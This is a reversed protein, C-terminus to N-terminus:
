PSEQEERNELRETLMDQIRDRVIDAARSNRELDSFDTLDHESLLVPEGFVITMKNPLPMPSSVRGRPPPLWDALRPTAAMRKRAARRSRSIMTDDLPVICVPIIPSETEFAMQVFSTDRFRAVKHLDNNISGPPSYGEPFVSVLEDQELLRVGNDVSNVAQGMKVMLSSLFPIAPIQEPYLNRVLRQAPHENLVTTMILAPDWSPQDSQNCVLLTRDYDPINEMGDTEVRWFFNYLLDLFPRITEVLEWDLGWDDTEYDGKLRRKLLDSQYELTTSAMYWMGRWTEQDLLDENFVGLVRDLISPRKAPEETRSDQAPTEAVDPRPSPPPSYDPMIERVRLMLDDLEEILQRRTEPDSESEEIELNDIAIVPNELEDQDAHVHCYGSGPKPGNKCRNGSKTLAACQKLQQSEEM